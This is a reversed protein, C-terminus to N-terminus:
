LEIDKFHHLNRLLSLFSFVIAVIFCIEALQTLRILFSGSNSQDLGMGKLEINSSRQSRKTQALKPTATPQNEGFSLFQGLGCVCLFTDYHDCEVLREPEIDGFLTEVLGKSNLPLRLLAPGSIIKGLELSAIDPNL